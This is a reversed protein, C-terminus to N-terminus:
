IAEPFNKLFELYTKMHYVNKFIKFYLAHLRITKRLVVLM